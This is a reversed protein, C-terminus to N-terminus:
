RDIHYPATFGCKQRYVKTTIHGQLYRVKLWLEDTAFKGRLQKVEYFRYSQYIRPITLISLCIGRNDQSRKPYKLMNPEFVLGRPCAMKKCSPM